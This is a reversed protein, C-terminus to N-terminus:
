EAPKPSEEATGADDEGGAAPSASASKQFQAHITKLLELGLGSQQPDDRGDTVFVQTVKGKQEVHVRFASATSDGGGGFLGSFLGVDEPARQGTGNYYVEFIGKAQDEGVVELKARGLARNVSRWADEFPAEVEILPVDSMDQALTTKPDPEVPETEATARPTPEEKPRLAEAQAASTVAGEITSSSLDPPIELPPIESHYRYQKQKDPFLSAIYTCGGLLWLASGLAAWRFGNGM